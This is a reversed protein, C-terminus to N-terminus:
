QYLILIKHPSQRRLSYGSLSYDPDSLVLQSGVFDATQKGVSMFSTLYHINFIFTKIHISPECIDVIVLNLVHAFCWIYDVRSNQFKLYTRLGQYEGQMSRAGDYMQAILEEKWNFKYKEYINYFTNFLGKGSASAVQLAHLCEQIKGDNIVFRVVFAFQELRFLDM